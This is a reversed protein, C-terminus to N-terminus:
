APRGPPHGIKRPPLDVVALVDLLRDNPRGQRRLPGRLQVVSRERLSVAGAVLYTLRGQIERM